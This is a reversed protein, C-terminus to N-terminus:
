RGLIAKGAAALAEFDRLTSYVYASARVHLRGEVLQIAPEVGRERFARWRTDLQPQGHKGPVPFPLCAMFGMMAGPAVPKVGWAQGLLGAGEIALSRCHTDIATEGFRARFALADEVCLWPAFDRTGPWDFAATFGDDIFHSIVTPRIGAQRRQTAWLFGTGRPAGLWKHANGVYYHVGAQELATLDIAIQGPGHAGDILVKIGRDACASVLRGLPMRIATQSTIHDLMALRTRPSLARELADLAEAKERIPCPIDAYVLRAGARETVFELTRRVAGYAHSTTVVEDGPMLVFSRLVANMADSANNAFVIDDGRANLYTALATASRRLLAPLEDRMFRSPNAEIRLRLAECARMVPLPTVGYGGHNLYALGPELPFM